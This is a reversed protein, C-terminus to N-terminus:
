YTTRGGVLDQLKDGLLTFGVVVLLIVLGPVISWWWYVQLYGLGLSSMAGWEPYNYDVGIGLFALTSFTLIVTGFDLTAYAIIPDISNPFIHRFLIRTSSVGSLKAAEVFSRNKLALAEGRFFRAYTPWWVIILAIMASQFASGLLVTIAIALVLGPIALFADTLRMLVEDVLGGFYGAGIGVLMGVSIGVFVVVVAAEVDHPAAYLIQSLISLGRSDTGFLGALTWNPPQPVNQTITGRLVPISPLLLWGYSANRTLIAIEQMAAEVVGWILFGAVIVLGVFALKDKWIQRLYFRIGSVRRQVDEEWLQEGSISVEAKVPVRKRALIGFFRRTAIESWKEPM